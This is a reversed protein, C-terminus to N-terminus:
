VVIPDLVNRGHAGSRRVSRMGNDPRMTDNEAVFNVKTELHKEFINNNKVRCVFYHISSWYLSWYLSLGWGGATIM